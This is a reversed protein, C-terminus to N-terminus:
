KFQHKLISHLINLRLPIHEERNEDDDEHEVDENHHPRNNEKDERDPELLKNAFFYHIFPFRCLFLSGGLGKGNLLNIRDEYISYKKCYFFSRKLYEKLGQLTKLMQFTEM